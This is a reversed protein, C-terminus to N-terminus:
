ACACEDVIMGNHQTIVIKPPVSNDLHLMPLPRLRKATCCPKPINSNQRHIAAQITAHTNGAKYLRGRKNPCRGECFYAEYGTPALIWDNWGLDEFSVYLKKRCCLRDNSSRHCDEFRPTGERFGGRKAKLAPSARWESTLVSLTPTFDDILVEDLLKSRYRVNAPIFYITQCIPQNLCDIQLGYNTINSQTWLEVAQTVDFFEWGSKIISVPRSALLLKVDDGPKTTLYVNVHVNDEEPLVPSLIAKFIKLKASSVLQAKNYRLTSM